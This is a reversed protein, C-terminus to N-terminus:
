RIQTQKSFYAACGNACTKKVCHSAAAVAAAATGCNKLTRVLIDCQEKETLDHHDRRLLHVLHRIQLNEVIIDSLIICLVAYETEFDQGCGTVTVDAMRGDTGDIERVRVMCGRHMAGLTRNSILPLLKLGDDEIGITMKM